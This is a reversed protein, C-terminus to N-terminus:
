RTGGSTAARESPKEAAIDTHHHRAQHWRDILPDLYDLQYLVWGVGYLAGGATATIMITNLWWSLTPLITTITDM